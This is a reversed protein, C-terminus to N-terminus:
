SLPQAYLLHISYTVMLKDDRKMCGDTWVIWPILDLTLFKQCTASPSWLAKALLNEGDFNFNKPHFLIKQNKLKTKPIM